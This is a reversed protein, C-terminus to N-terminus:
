KLQYTIKVSFEIKAFMDVDKIRVKVENKAEDQLVEFKDADLPKNDITVTMTTVDTNVESLKNELKYALFLVHKDNEKTEDKTFTHQLTILKADKTDVEIEEKKFVFAELNEQSHRGKIEITGEADVTVPLAECFSQKRQEESLAPNDTIRCLKTTEEIKTEPTAVEPKPAPQPNTDAPTQPNDTPKKQDIKYAAGGNVRTFNEKKKNDQGCATLLGAIALVYVLNKLVSKM